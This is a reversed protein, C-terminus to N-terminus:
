IDDPIRTNYNGNSIESAIKEIRQSRRKVENNKKILEAEMRIREVYDKKVRMYFAVTLAVSLITAFIVFGLTLKINGTLRERRIEMLMTERTQLQSVIAKVTEMYGKGILMESETPNRGQTKMAITKELYGLKKNVANRLTKLDEQQAQNDSTLLVVTDLAKVCTHKTPAFDIIYNDDGTLLYGRQYTEADKVCSMMKEIWLMVKQTHEVWQNNDILKKVSVYTAISSAVLLLMSLSFGLKLKINLQHSM